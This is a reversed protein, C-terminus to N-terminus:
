RKVVPFQIETRLSEPPVSNPNSLYISRGPGSIRYGNEGIWKKLRDYSKGVQDYPGRHITFAVEIPKTTKIKIEGKGEKGKLPVIPWQVEWRLDEPAVTQPDNYYIGMPPGAVQLGEQQIWAMVEQFVKPLAEYSGQHSAYAVTLSEVRKVSIEPGKKAKKECGCALFLFLALVLSLVVGKPKMEM